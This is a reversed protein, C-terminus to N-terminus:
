RSGREIRLAELSSMKLKASTVRVNRVSAFTCSAAVVDLGEAEHDMPVVKAIARARDMVQITEGAEASRLHLSLHSKLESISVKTM